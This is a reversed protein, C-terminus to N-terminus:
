SGRKTRRTAVFNYEGWGCMRRVWSKNVRWVGIIGPASPIVAAVRVILMPVSM